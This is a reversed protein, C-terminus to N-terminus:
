GASTLDLIRAGNRPRQATGFLSATHLPDHPTRLDSVCPSIALLPPCSARPNSRPGLSTPRSGSDGDCGVEVADRWEGGDVWEMWLAQGRV